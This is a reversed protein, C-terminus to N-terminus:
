FLLLLLLIFGEFMNQISVSLSVQQLVNGSFIIYVTLWKTTLYGVLDNNECPDDFSFLYYNYHTVCLSSWYSLFPNLTQNTYTGLFNVIYGTLWYYPNEKSCPLFFFFVSTRARGSNGNCKGVLPDPNKRSCMNPTEFFFYIFIM